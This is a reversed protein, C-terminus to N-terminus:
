PCEPLSLLNNPEYGDAATKLYKRREHTAVIVDVEKSNVNVFFAWVGDEIGKIADDEVVYYQNHNTSDTGGIGQIREHPNRHGGYKKICKVQHRVPM